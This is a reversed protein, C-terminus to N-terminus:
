GMKKLLWSFQGGGRSTMGQVVLQDVGHPYGDGDVWMSEELALDAGADNGGLR